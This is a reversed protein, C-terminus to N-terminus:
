KDKDGGTPHAQSLLYERALLSANKAGIASMEMASAAKEIGNIYFVGDDLKFSPFEEPPNYAPYALWDVAAVDDIKSFMQGLQEGTLPQPSFVKWTRVPNRYLPRLYENAERTSFECPVDVALTSYVQAGEFETTLIILPFAHGLEGLGFFAPNIEGRVFTAITRQYPTTAANTYVKNPFNNFKISSTNLPNAFIVVDFSSSSGDSTIIPYSVKGDMEVRTISLVETEHFAAKSAELTRVPILRNGGVVSWLDGDSMAIMAVLTTFADVKLDQNYNNFMASTMIEDVFRDSWGKATYYERATAQTMNVFDDGGMARLMDPVTTFARGSAQLNYITVFRKLMTKAFLDFRLLTIGYHWFTKLTNIFSWNGTRFVFQQGNYIGVPM